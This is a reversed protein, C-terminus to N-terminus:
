GTRRKEHRKGWDRWQQEDSRDWYLAPDPTEGLELAKGLAIARRLAELEGDKNPEEGFFSISNYGIYAAEHREKSYVGGRLFASDFVQTVMGSATTIPSGANCDQASENGIAARATPHTGAAVREWARCLVQVPTMGWKDQDNQYDNM